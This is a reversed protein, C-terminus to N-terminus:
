VGYFSELLNIIEQRSNMMNRQQDNVMGPKDSEMKDKNFRNVEKKVIDWLKSNLNQEVSVKTETVFIQRYVKILETVYDSGASVNDRNNKYNTEVQNLKEILNNVNAPPNRQNPNPKPLVTGLPEPIQPPSSRTNNGEIPAITPSPGEQHENLPKAVYGTQHRGTITQGGNPSISNSGKPGLGIGVGGAKGGNVAYSADNQGSRQNTPTFPGTNPRSSYNIPANQIPNSPQFALFPEPFGPERISSPQNQHPQQLLVQGRNASSNSPDM